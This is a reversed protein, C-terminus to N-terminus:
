EARGGGGFECGKEKENSFCADLFLLSSFHCPLGTLPYPNWSCAFSLSMGMGMTLLVLWLSVLSCQLLM